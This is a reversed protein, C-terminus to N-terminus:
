KLFIKLTIWLNYRYKHIKIIQYSDDKYEVSISDANAIESDIIVQDIDKFDENEAKWEIYVQILGNSKEASILNLETLWKLNFISNITKEKFVYDMGDKNIWASLIDVIKKATVHTVEGTSRVGPVLPIKWPFKRTKDMFEILYNLNKFVSLSYNSALEDILDEMLVAM